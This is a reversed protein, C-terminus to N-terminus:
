TIGYFKLVITGSVILFLSCNIVPLSGASSSSLEYSEHAQKGVLSKPCYQMDSAHSRRFCVKPMCGAAVKCELVGQVSCLIKELFTAVLETRSLTSVSRCLSVQLLHASLARVSFVGVNIMSCVNLVNVSCNGLSAFVHVSGKWSHRQM